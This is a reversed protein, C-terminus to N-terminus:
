IIRIKTKILARITIILTKHIWLIIKLTRILMKKLFWDSTVVHIRIIILKKIIKKNWLLHSINKIWSRFKLLFHEQRDRHPNSIKTIKTPNLDLKTKFKLRSNIKKNKIRKKLIKIQKISQIKNIPLNYRKSFIRGIQEMKTRSHYM